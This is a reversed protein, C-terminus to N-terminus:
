LMITMNHINKSVLFLEREGIFIPVRIYARSAGGAVANWILTSSNKLVTALLDPGRSAVAFTNVKKDAAYYPDDPPVGASVLGFPIARISFLLNDQGMQLYFVSM